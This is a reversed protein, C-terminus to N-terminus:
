QERWVTVVESSSLPPPRPLTAARELSYDLLRARLWSLASTGRAVAVIQFQERVGVNGEGLTVKCRWNGGSGREMNRNVYWDKGEKPHVLVFVSADYPEVTGQVDFWLNDAVDGNTPRVITVIIQDEALIQALVITSGAVLLAAVFLGWALFKHRLLRRQVLLWALAVPIGIMVALTIHRIMM